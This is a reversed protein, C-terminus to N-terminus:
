QVWISWPAPIDVMILRNKGWFLDLRKTNQLYMNWVHLMPSTSFIWVHVDYATVVKVVKVQKTGSLIQCCLLVVLDVVGLSRRDRRHHRPFARAAVLTIREQKSILHYRYQLYIYIYVYTYM